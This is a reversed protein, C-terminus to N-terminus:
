YPKNTSHVHHFHESSSDLNYLSLIKTQLTESGGRFEQKRVEQEETGCRIAGSAKEGIGTKKVSDM